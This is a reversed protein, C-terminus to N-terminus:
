FGGRGDRAARVWCPDFEFDCAGRWVGEPAGSPSEEFEPGGADMVHGDLSEVARNEELVALSDCAGEFERAVLAGGGAGEGEIEGGAAGEKVADIDLKM